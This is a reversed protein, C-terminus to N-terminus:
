VTPRQGPGRQVREDDWHPPERVLQRDLLQQIREDAEVAPGGGNTEALRQRLGAVRGRAVAAANDEVVRLRELSAAAATYADDDTRVAGLPSETDTIQHLDRFAVVNGLDRRWAKQRSADDPAPRIRESWPEPKAAATDVLAQTRDHILEAQAHLWARTERNGGDVGEPPPSVWSPLGTETQSGPAGIRHHYIKALSEVTSGPGADEARVAAALHTRVDAGHAEHAALRSALHTWAEDRVVRDAIETDLVDRVAAEIRGLQNPDYVRTLADEYAPLLTALSAATDQARQIEETASREASERALVATLADIINTRLHDPAHADVELTEEVVAYMRNSERGRTAAVYLQERSTSQPDVLIHSTDVTMGQVRNITAAYGLEVHTAVYEAPLTLVGGHRLSKVKLDGGETDIITWLDGNAVFDKGQNSRLKRDNQRTVIVDNLGAKNGDHLVSGSKGVVGQGVLDLRARANLAAVEDNTGAVMISHRNAARDAAWAVYIEELMGQRIGGRTRDATVYFDLAASAGDRLLLSAAAEDSDIFRHVQDLYSAGVRQEILRLAGGSEVAALQAPDGLLRITAGHLKALALVDALLPTSAMGAEDILLVTNSDIRYQDSEQQEPSGHRHVDVLKHATEAEVKIEEALVTSAAATPALALVRGGGAEVARAFARMATTKGTGAPGIGVELLRGGSAFRRALEVQSADLPYESAANLAEITTTFTEPDVTFGAVTRAADILSDEIALIRASTFRETGHVRYISEGGQRQLQEPVPNLAPATVGIVRAMVAQAVQDAVQQADVGPRVNAFARAIRQAEAAVHSRRWTARSDEVTNLVREALEDVSLAALIEDTVSLQQPQRVTAGIRDVAVEGIIKIAALRWEARQRALSKPASKGERTELTARQALSLQVTRPPTHGHKAVYEQVLTEYADEIAARRSSFSDRLERGVGAVERVSRKNRGRTEDVFTVGLRNRVEQEVLTNYRESAAVGLAHLVRGDLSRWKGDLGQVKTSVAVHTHLNPDGTRSDRHEFATAVFGHTDVQAVGGAGVRTVGAETELWTVTAQWAANHAERVQQSTADDGLAWLVSVSKVPTFVLDYGAVPQRAAKGMQSLHTAVEADTGPRQLTAAVRDAAINWRILDREVGAEPRRGNEVEFAQYADAVADDWGDLKPQIRPFRRGLRSAQVADEPSAGGAVADRIAAEADPHLGDGFLAQMQEESVNGSVGLNVLGSGLWEGVPNGEATYYDTLDEGRRVSHDGAAVQRTLYTYGDGAHLVHVTMM